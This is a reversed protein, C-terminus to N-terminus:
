SIVWRSSSLMTGMRIAIHSRSVSNVCIIIFWQHTAHASLSGSIPGPAGGMTLEHDPDTSLRHRLIMGRPRLRGGCIAAALHLGSGINCGSPSTSGAGIYCTTGYGTHVLSLVYETRHLGHLLFWEASCRSHPLSGINRSWNKARNAFSSRESQM